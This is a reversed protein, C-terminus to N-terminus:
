RSYFYLYLNATETAMEGWLYHLVRNIHDHGPVLRDGEVALHRPVRLGSDLPQLIALEDGRGPVVRPGM